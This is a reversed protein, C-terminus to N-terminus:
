DDKVFNKVFEPDELAEEVTTSGGPNGITEFINAAAEKFPKWKDALRQMPKIAEVPCVIECAGCDICEAPNIYLMRDSEAEFHICDVPCVEVCAKDTTDICPQTIVFAM